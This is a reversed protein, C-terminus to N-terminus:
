QIEKIVCFTAGDRKVSLIDPSHRKATTAQNLRASILVYDGPELQRYGIVNIHEPAYYAANPAERFVILTEEKETFNGFKELAEKYCTLWYDTEYSGEAGGTGGTIANYYTYQYPHLEIIGNIGFILFALVIVARMWPARIWVFFKEFAFGIVIFIPPLIFLFHRYNDYMAPRMILVYAIMFFFWFLIISLSRWEINKKYLRYLINSMGFAFLLWVPETLTIGLLVPLYRLPVEYSKYPTGYFLTKPSVPYNAMTQLIEIFKAIPADWLYPWTIYTILIAIFATPIFWFLIKFKKKLTAYAFLMIGLLPGIIRLNTALGILIGTIIIDKWPPSKHRSAALNDVMRFGFYMTAIFLTAFPPDKPNIFAHGWLVPQTTYLLTLSIAVSPRFWRLSLYYLFYVGILFNIFNLLHWVAVKDIGTFSQLTYVAGRAIILYAPGHNQHDWASPEFALSLDYDDSLREPISYAYGISDAYQYYLFEDWAMGYDKFTFIGILLSILLLVLIPFHKSKFLM